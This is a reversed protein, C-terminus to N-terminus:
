VPVGLNKISQLLGRMIFPPAWRPAGGPASGTVRPRGGRPPRCVGRSDPGQGGRRQQRRNTQAAPVSAERWGKTYSRAPFTVSHGDGKRSEWITFGVLKLGAMPGEHFLLEAEALKEKPAGASVPIITVTLAETTPTTNSTM